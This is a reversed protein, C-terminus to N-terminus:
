VWVNQNVMQEQMKRRSNNVLSAQIIPADDGGIRMAFARMVSTTLNPNEKEFRGHIQVKDHCDTLIFEGVGQCGYTKGDFTNVHPDGSVRACKEVDEQFNRLWCGDAELFSLSGSATLQRSSTDEDSFPNGFGDVTGVRSFTPNVVSGEFSEGLQRRRTHGLATMANKYAFCKKDEFKCATITGPLVNPDNELGICWDQCDKALSIPGLENINREIKVESANNAAHCNKVPWWAKGQMFVFSSFPIIHKLNHSSKHKNTQKHTHTHTHTRTHSLGMEM